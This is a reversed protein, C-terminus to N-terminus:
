CYFRLCITLNLIAGDKNISVEKNFTEGLPIDKGEVIDLHKGDALWTHMTFDLKNDSVFPDFSLRDLPGEDAEVRYRTAGVPNLALGKRKIDIGEGKIEFDARLAVAEDSRLDPVM